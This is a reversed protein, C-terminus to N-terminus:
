SWTDKTIPDHVNWTIEVWEWSSRIFEEWDDMINPKCFPEFWCREVDWDVVQPADTVKHPYDSNVVLDGEYIEVGSKDTLGTSQGVTEPDVPIFCKWIPCWNYMFVTDCYEDNEKLPDLHQIIYGYVWEWTELSKGRYKRTM